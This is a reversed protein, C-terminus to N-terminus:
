SVGLEIVYTPLTNGYIGDSYRIEHVAWVSFRFNVFPMSPLSLINKPELCSSGWTELKSVM